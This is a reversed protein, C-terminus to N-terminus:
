GNKWSSAQHRLVIKRNKKRSKRSVFFVKESNEEKKDETERL